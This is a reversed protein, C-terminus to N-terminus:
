HSPPSIDDAVQSAALLNVREEEMGSKWYLFTSKLPHTICYNTQQKESHTSKLVHIKKELRDLIHKLPM